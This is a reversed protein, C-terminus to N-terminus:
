RLAATPTESGPLLREGSLAASGLRDILERWVPWDALDMNQL